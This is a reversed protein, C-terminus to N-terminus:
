ADMPQHLRTGTKLTTLLATTFVPAGRDLKFQVTKEPDLGLHPCTLDWTYSTEIPQEGGGGEEKCPQPSGTGQVAEPAPPRAEPGMRRAHSEYVQSAPGHPSTPNPKESDNQSACRGDHLTGLQKGQAPSTLSKEGWKGERWSHRSPVLGTARPKRFAPGAGQGRSAKHIRPALFRLHDLQLGLFHGCSPLVKGQGGRTGQAFRNRLAPPSGSSHRGAPHAQALVGPRAHMERSRGRCAGDEPSMGPPSLLSAATPFGLGRVRSAVHTRSAKVRLEPSQHWASALLCYPSGGPSNPPVSGRRLTPKAAQTLSTLPVFPPM